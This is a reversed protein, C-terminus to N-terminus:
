NSKEEIKISQQFKHSDPTKGWEDSIKFNRLNTPSELVISAM